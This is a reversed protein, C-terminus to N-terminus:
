VCCMCNNDGFICKMNFSYHIHNKILDKKSFESQEDKEEENFDQQNIEEKIEKIEEKIVHSKQLMIELQEKNLKLVRDICDCDYIESEQLMQNFKEITIKNQDIVNYGFVFYCDGSIIHLVSNNLFTAFRTAVRNIKHYNDLVFRNRNKLATSDHSSFKQFFDDCGAYFFKNLTDKELFRFFISKSRTLDATYHVGGPEDMTYHIIADDNKIIVKNPFLQTICGDISIKLFLSGYEYYKHFSNNM